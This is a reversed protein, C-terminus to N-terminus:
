LVTAKEQPEQVLSRKTATAYELAWQNQTSSETVLVCVTRIDFVTETWV